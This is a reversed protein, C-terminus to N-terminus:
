FVEVHGKENKTKKKKKKKDGSVNSKTESLPKAIALLILVIGAAAFYAVAKTKSNM